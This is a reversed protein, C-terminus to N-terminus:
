LHGALLALGALDHVDEELRPVVARPGPVGEFLRTLAAADGAALREQEALTAALRGALPAAAGLLPTLAAAEPLPGTGRWLSATVRNAVVGAVPM